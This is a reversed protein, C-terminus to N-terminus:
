LAAKEEALREDLETLMRAVERRKARISMPNDLPSLAHNFRLQDLADKEAAIRGKLEETSLSKYELNKKM